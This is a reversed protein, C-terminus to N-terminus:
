EVMFRKLTELIGSRFWFEIVVFNLRDDGVYKMIDDFDVLLSEDDLFFLVFM